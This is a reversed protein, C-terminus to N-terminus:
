LKIFLVATVVAFGVLLMAVKLIRNRPSSLEHPLIEMFTIYLFTGGALGELTCRALQHQPSTQTETLGIGVAIGLPSMVAFLLLCGVVVSRRLRSQSLKFSLSFSIISKHIMLALCIELVEKGEEVLGVALGEFVSHLSLSFVLIFARLASQSNFDVHFHSSHSSDSEDSGRRRGNAQVTSDVLLARREETLPSSQDKFALIIQELVLVLFFGMAMIFEPLPFQLTIGANTFAQNISQLYDPLLDLLCTALFVGGAFCSILSLLRRRLDSDVSCRGAGRVICLPTFGFLLTVSLLVVLAGLKIELAPVAAPNAQLAAAERGPSLLVSM